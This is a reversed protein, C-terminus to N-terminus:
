SGGGFNGMEFEYGIRLSTLTEVPVFVDKRPKFPNTGCVIDVCIGLGEDGESGNWRGGPPIAHGTWHLKPDLHRLSKSSSASPIVEDAENRTRYSRRTVSRGLTAADVPCVSVVQRVKVAMVDVKHIAATDSINPIDGERRGRLHGGVRQFHLFQQLFTNAEYRIRHIHKTADRIWHSTGENGVRPYIWSLRMEESCGVVCWVCMEAIYQLRGWMENPMDAIEGECMRGVAWQVERIEHFYAADWEGVQFVEENESPSFQYEAERTEEGKFQVDRDVIDGGECM